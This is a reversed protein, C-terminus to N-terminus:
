PRSGCKKPLYRDFMQYSYTTYSKIKYKNINRIFIRGDEQPSIPSHTQIEEKAIEFDTAGTICITM